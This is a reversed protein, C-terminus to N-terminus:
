VRGGTVSLVGSGWHTSLFRCRSSTGGTESQARPPGSISNTITDIQRSTSHTDTPHSSRCGDNFPTNIGITRDPDLSVPSGWEGFNQAFATPICLMTQLLVALAVLPLRASASRHGAARAIYDPSEFALSM